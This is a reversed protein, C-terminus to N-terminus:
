FIFRPFLTRWVTAPGHKSLLRFPRLFLMWRPDINHSQAWLTDQASPLFFRLRQTWRNRADPELQVFVGAGQHTTQPEAPGTLIKEWMAVAQATIVPKRAIAAAAEAPLQLNFSCRALECTTLLAGEIGIAHAIRLAEDMDGEDLDALARVADIVWILRAFEHKIGHITLYILLDPKAFFRSRQGRFQMVQARRWAAELNMAPTSRPAVAYHLEVFTEGRTFGQHYDDVKSIAIFGLHILLTQARAFDQHQVLLDLDDSPRLGLRGYLAEAMVPGKLSLVEIGQLNFQHLLAELESALFASMAWQTRLRSVFTEPLEHSFDRCFIPFVGHSEALELLVQWNISPPAPVGQGRLTALLFESELTM